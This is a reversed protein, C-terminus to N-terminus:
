NFKFGMSQAQKVANNYQEQTVKGSNMLHQIIDQPNNSINGPVGLGALAAMPNSKLQAMMQMMQMVNM